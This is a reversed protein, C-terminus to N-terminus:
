TDTLAQSIFIVPQGHQLLAGGIGVASADCELMILKDLNFYKLTVANM